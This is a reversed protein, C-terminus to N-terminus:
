VFAFFRKESVFINSRLLRKEEISTWSSRTTEAQAIPALSFYIM